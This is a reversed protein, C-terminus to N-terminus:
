TPFTHLQLQYQCCPVRIMVLATVRVTNGSKSVKRYVKKVSPSPPTRCDRTGQLLFEGRPILHQSGVWTVQM